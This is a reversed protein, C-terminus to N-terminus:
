CITPQTSAHGLEVELSFDPLISKQIEANHQAVDMYKWLTISSAFTLNRFTNQESDCKLRLQNDGYGTEEFRTSFSV